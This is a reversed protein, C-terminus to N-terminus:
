VSKFVQLYANLVSCGPFPRTTHGNAAVSRENELWIKSYGLISDTRAVWHQESRWDMYYYSTCLSVNAGPTDHLNRVGEDKEM